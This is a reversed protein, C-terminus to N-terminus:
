ELEFYGAAPVEKFKPLFKHSLGMEVKGKGTYSISKERCAALARRKISSPTSSKHQRVYVALEGSDIDIAYNKSLNAM